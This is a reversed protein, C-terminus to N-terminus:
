CCGGSCGGTAAVRQASALASAGVTISVPRQSTSSTATTTAPTRARLERNFGTSIRYEHAAIKTRIEISDPGSVSWGDFTSGDLMVRVSGPDPLGGVTFGTENGRESATACYTEVWLEGADLDNWCQSLGLKPYDVGSVTPESFKELNPENFVRSWAGPEGLESLVMLSSLQGRPWEEGFGFWWGFHDGDPGFFKPEFDAEAVQRLRSETASDGVERATIIGLTLWRPDPHLQLLAKDPANWGLKNVAMEYLKTGLERSRPLVYLTIAIAAYAGVEDRLTCMSREIPDYYFAFWDINGKSDFGMYHKHAYEIWREYVWNTQADYLGDYLQMGVGGGSVCFPWIKTNECHVGQPREAWQDHMFSVLQHHDWEFARGQYGAMKFPQEWKADGSVYRYFCLLLNFFARFFFNGDSGVPDPQLGWPEVGNAVWGPSDYHGRLHEPSVALWEPPYNQQDPDNGIMTLWDIAAQFTTHRMVLEDAIRTYAERWAPTIDCMVPLVYGTEHLDFRGLSCMPPTSYRDWWPHPEGDVSWDDETTAKDWIFRLWGRAREDLRPFTNTTM